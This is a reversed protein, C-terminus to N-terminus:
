PTTGTQTFGINGIRIWEWRGPIEFPIEELSLLPLSAQKRIKEEKVLREKEEQIRKLLQAAPEDKAEQEVLKGRVALELIFRRLRPIADSAESLRDFYQLLQTPTM